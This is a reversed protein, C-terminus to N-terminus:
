KAPVVYINRTIFVLFHRQVLASSLYLHHLSSMSHSGQMPGPYERDGKKRGQKNEEKDKARKINRKKEKSM